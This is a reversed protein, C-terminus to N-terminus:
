NSTSNKKKALKVIFLVITKLVRFIGHVTSAAGILIWPLCPHMDAIHQQVQMFQPKLALEEATWFTSGELYYPIQKNFELFFGILINLLGFVIWTWGARYIFLLPWFGLLLFCDSVWVYRSRAPIVFPLIFGIVWMVTCVLGAIKLAKSKHKGKKNAPKDQNNSVSSSEQM